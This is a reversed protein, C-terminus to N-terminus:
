KEVHPIMGFRRYIQNIAYSASDKVDRIGSHTHRELLEIDSPEGISGLAANAYIIEYQHQKENEQRVWYRIAARSSDTDCQGLADIASHRVLWENSKSCVVVPSLDLDAPLKMRSIGTLISYLVYKSTEVQLRDILFQCYEPKMTRLLCKALVWYANERLKTDSRGTKQEIYERILQFIENGNVRKERRWFHWKPADLMGMIKDPPTMEDLLDYLENKTM